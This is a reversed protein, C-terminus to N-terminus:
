EVGGKGKDKAGFKFKFGFVLMIVVIAILGIILTANGQLSGADTIYSTEFGAISTNMGESVAVTGGTATNAISGVVLGGIMLAAYFGIFIVLLVGLVLAGQKLSDTSVMKIHVEM